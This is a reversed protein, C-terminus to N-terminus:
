GITGASGLALVGIEAVLAFSAIRYARLLPKLAVDNRQLLRDLEYALRRYVQDPQDRFAYLGEITGRGSLAFRLSRKPLLVRVGAAVAIAYPILAIFVFAGRGHALFSLAVSAAGLLVGSRARLEAVVTEQKDLARLAADYAIEELSAAM